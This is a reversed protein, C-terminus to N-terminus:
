DVKSLLLMACPSQKWSGTIGCFVCRGPNGQKFLVSPVAESDRFIIVYITFVCVCNTRNVLQRLSEVVSGSVARYM